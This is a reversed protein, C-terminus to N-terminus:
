FKKKEIPIRLASHITIGGVNYAAVGTPALLMFSSNGLTATLTTTIHKILTSKGTGATGQVIMRHALTSSENPASSVHALQQQFLEIIKRRELSFHVPV